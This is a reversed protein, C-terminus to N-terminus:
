ALRERLKDARIRQTRGNIRVSYYTQNCIKIPSLRRAIGGDALLVYSHKADPPITAETSATKPLQKKM